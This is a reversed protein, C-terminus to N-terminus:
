YGRKLGVAGVEEVGAVARCGSFGSGGPFGGPLPLSRDLLWRRPDLTWDIM